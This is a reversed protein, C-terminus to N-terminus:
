EKFNIQPCVKDHVSKLWVMILNLERQRPVTGVRNLANSRKPRIYWLEIRERAINLLMAATVALTVFTVVNFWTLGGHWFVGQFASLITLINGLVFAGAILTIISFLLLGGAVMRVYPCLNTEYAPSSGTMKALRYHWSNKNFTYM